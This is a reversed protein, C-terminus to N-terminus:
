ITTLNNVYLQINNIWYSYYFCITIIIPKPIEIIFDHFNTHYRAYAQTNFKHECPSKVRAYDHRMIKFIINPERLTFIFKFFYIYLENVIIKMPNRRMITIIVIYVCTRRIMRLTIIDVTYTHNYICTYVHVYVAHYVNLLILKVCFVKNWM